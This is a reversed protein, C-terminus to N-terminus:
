LIYRTVESGGNSSPPTWQVVLSTKSQSVLTPAHLGSPVSIPTVSAEFSPESDGGIDNYAKVTYSYQKGGEVTTDSYDFQSPSLNAIVLPAAM